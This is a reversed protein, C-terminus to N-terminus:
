GTKRTSNGLWTMRASSKPRAMTSTAILLVPSDRLRTKSFRSIRAITSNSGITWLSTLATVEREQNLVGNWFM